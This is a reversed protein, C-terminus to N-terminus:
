LISENSIVPSATQNNSAWSIEKFDELIIFCFYYQKPKVHEWEACVLSHFVIGKRRYLFTLCASDITKAHFYYYPLHPLHFVHFVANHEVISTTLSRIGSNVCFYILWMVTSAPLLKGASKYMNHQGQCNYRRFLGSFFTTSRIQLRLVSASLGPASNILLFTKM